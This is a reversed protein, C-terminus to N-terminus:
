VIALIAAADEVEGIFGSIVAAGMLLVIMFDTFQGLLMRWASRPAQELIENRGHEVLRRSAEAASLGAELSSELKTETEEVPTAHWAVGTSMSTGQEFTFAHRGQHTRSGRARITM